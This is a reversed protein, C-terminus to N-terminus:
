PYTEASDDYDTTHSHMLDITDFAIINIFSNSDTDNFDVDHELAVSLEHLVVDIPRVGDLAKTLKAINKLVIDIDVSNSIIELRIHKTPYYGPYSSTDDPTDWAKWNQDYDDSALKVIRGVLGFSYLLIKLSNETSKIKYWHPITKVMYRIHRRIEENDVYRPDTSDYKLDSKIDFNENGSPKFDSINLDIRYGLYEAIDNIFEIDVLRPDKIERLEQIKDLVSLKRFENEQEQTEPEVNNCLYLENVFREFMELFQYSETNVLYQSLYSKLDIKRLPECQRQKYSDVLVFQVKNSTGFNGVVYVEYNAPPLFEPSLVISDDNISLVYEPPAPIVDGNENEFFVQPDSGGGFGFGSLTITTNTKTVAPDITNIIVGDFEQVQGFYQTPYTQELVRYNTDGVDYKLYEVLMETSEYPAPTPDDYRVGLFIRSNIDPVKGLVAVTNILNGDVRFEVFKPDTSWTIKLVHPSEDAINLNFLDEQYNVPDLGTGVWTRVKTQDSSPVDIRIEHNRIVYNRGKPDQKVLLGESVGDNYLGENAHQYLYEYHQLWLGYTAPKGSPITVKTEIEGSGVYFKSVLIGGVRRSDNIPNGSEDYGIIGIM